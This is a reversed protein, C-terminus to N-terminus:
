EVRYNEAVVETWLETNKRNNSPQVMPDKSTKDEKYIHEIQLFHEQRYQMLTVGSYTYDEALGM